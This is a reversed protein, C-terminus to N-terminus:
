RGFVCAAHKDTLKFNSGPKILNADLPYVPHITSLFSLKSMLYLKRVVIYSLSILFTISFCHVPVSAILLRIGSKFGFHSIFLFVLLCFVILFYPWGLPYRNGLLNCSLLGFWVLLIIFLCLTFCM